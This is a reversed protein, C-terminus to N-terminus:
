LLNQQMKYCTKGKELSTTDKNDRCLLSKRLSHWYILTLQSIRFGEMARFKVAADKVQKVLVTNLKDLAESSVEKTPCESLNASPM